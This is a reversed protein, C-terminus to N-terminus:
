EVRYAAQSPLRSGTEFSLGVSAFPSACTPGDSHCQSDESLNTAAFVAGMDVVVTSTLPSFEALRVLNRNAQKCAVKPAQNFDPDGGDVANDCGVSGLHFVGVGRVGSDAGGDPRSVSVMEAAFFKYGYLWGWTMGGAQLPAPATTPDGHNLSEPVGNSFVLGRYTGAPVTGTITNNTDPNGNKCEGTGDEFDLLAVDATQWPTRAIFTVPVEVGQDNILSMKDIFLRLDAPQAPTGAAGQSNYTMGCRFDESGVKAKFRITVPILGTTVDATDGADLVPVMAEPLPM